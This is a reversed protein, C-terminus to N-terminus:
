YDENSYGYQINEPAVMTMAVGIIRKDLKKLLAVSDKVATRKTFNAAVTLLIGDSFSAIHLYDSMLLVPPCDLLIFDYEQKLKKIFEKMKDSDLVLSSNHIEKGRTIVDVGWETKKIIEQESKEGVIYDGIGNEENIAFVKSVRPRRFDLDIIVVKKHNFALSAGLNCVMMTKGEGPISAEVQIVKVGQAGIYLLNDKLRNFSEDLTKRGGQEVTIKYEYPPISKKFMGIFNKVYKKM